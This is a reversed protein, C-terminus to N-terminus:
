RFGKKIIKGNHTSYYVMEAGDNLHLTQTQDEIKLNVKESIQHLIIGSAAAKTPQTPFQVRSAVKATAKKNIYFISVGGSNEQAIAEEILGEAAKNYASSQVNVDMKAGDVNREVTIEVPMLLEDSGTGVDVIAVVSRQSRVPFTSTVDKSAIVMVPDKIKEYLNKVTSDGLNHYHVKNSYRGDSIAQAKSVAASYIHGPGIVFPLSPVGLDRLIQPTYGMLVMDNSKYTGALTSYYVMEAGDNM